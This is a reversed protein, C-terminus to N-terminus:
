EKSEKINKDFPLEKGKADYLKVDARAVLGRIFSDLRKEQAKSRLGEKVESFTPVTAKRVDEVKIVHWGFSSKVPASIEGKKMKFVADAFEKVMKDKTFYGLDGGEAASGPDKSSAKAVEEFSKGGDIEKRAQKAEKETAVLIHRARIEQEDRMDKVLANYDGQLDKDDIDSTKAELFHRVVLKRKIEDLEKQVTDSKDVGQKLAENLLLRETMVGRLIQERADPTISNLDPAMGAPFLGAWMRNVEQATVDQNGVKLMVYDDAPNTTETAAMAPTGLLIPLIALFYPRM